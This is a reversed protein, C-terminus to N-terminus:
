KNNLYYRIFKLSTDAIPNNNQKLLVGCVCMFAVNEAWSCFEVYINVFSM